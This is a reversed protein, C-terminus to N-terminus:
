ERSPKMSSYVSYRCRREVVGKSKVWITLLTRERQRMFSASRPTARLTPTATASKTTAAYPSSHARNVAEEIM